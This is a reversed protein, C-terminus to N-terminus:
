KKYINNKLLVFRKYLELNEKILEMLNPRKNVPLIMIKILNMFNEVEEINSNKFIEKTIIEGGYDRLNRWLIGNNPLEIKALIELITLGLSYVDTKYDVKKLSTNDLCEFLEKSIYKSDGEIIDDLYFLEEKKHSLGFDNLIIHGENNVLYNTPKIDFHIYGKKHIYLLGIMMEFIIDWYFAPTFKFNNKELKELYDLIDGKKYYESLIYINKKLYYINENILDYNKNEIWYTIYKMCFNNGINWDKSERQIDELTTLLINFNNKSSKESIKKICFIKGTKNEKVKYIADGKKELLTKIITFDNKMRNNCEKNIIKNRNNELGKKLNNYIKNFKIDNDNDKLNNDFNYEDLNNEQNNQLNDNNEIGDFNLKICCKRNIKNGFLNKGEIKVPTFCNTEATKKPSEPESIRYTKYSTNIKPIFEKEKLLIISFDPKILHKKQESSPYSGYSNFNVQNSPYVINYGTNM